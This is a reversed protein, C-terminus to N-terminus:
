IVRYGEKLKLTIINERFTDFVQKGMNELSQPAEVYGVTFTGEKVRWDFSFGPTKGGPSFGSVQEPLSISFGGELSSFTESGAAKVPASPNSEVQFGQAAAQTTCAALLILLWSLRAFRKM